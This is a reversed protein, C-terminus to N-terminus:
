NHLRIVSSINHTFNRTTNRHFQPPFLSTQSKTIQANHFGSCSCRYVRGHGIIRILLLRLPLVGGNFQNSLFRFIGWWWCERWGGGGERGEGGRGLIQSTILLAGRVSFGAVWSEVPWNLKISGGYVIVASQGFRNPRYSIIPSLSSRLPHGFDFGWSPRFCIAWNFNFAAISYNMRPFNNIWNTGYCRSLTHPLLPLPLLCPFVVAFPSQSSLRQPVMVKAMIEISILSGNIWNNWGIKSFWSRSPDPNDGSNNWKSVTVFTGGVCNVRLSQRIRQGLGITEPPSSWLALM